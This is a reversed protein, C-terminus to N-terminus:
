GVMDRQFDLLIIDVGKRVTVNSTYFSWLQKHVSCPLCMPRREHPPIFWGCVAEDLDSLCCFSDFKAFYSDQFDFLVFM